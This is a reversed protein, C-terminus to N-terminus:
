EGGEPLCVPRTELALSAQLYEVESGLRDIENAQDVITQQWWYRHQPEISRMWEIRDKSM